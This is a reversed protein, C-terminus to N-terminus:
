LYREIVEDFQLFQLGDCWVRNAFQLCEFYLCARFLLFRTRSAGGASPNPMHRLDNPESVAAGEEALRAFLPVSFVMEENRWQM